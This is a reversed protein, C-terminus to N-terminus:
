SLKHLGQALSLGHHNLPKLCGNMFKLSTAHWIIKTPHVYGENVIYQLKCFTPAHIVSSSYKNMLIGDWMRTVQVQMIIISNACTVHASLVPVINLLHLLFTQLCVRISCKHSALHMHCSGEQVQLLPYSHEHASWKFRNQSQHRQPILKTSMCSFHPLMSSAWITNFSSAIEFHPRNSHWSIQVTHFTPLPLLRQFQKM